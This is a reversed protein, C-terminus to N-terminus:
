PCETAAADACTTDWETDCCFPDDPCIVECCALSECGPSGNATLCSGDEADGCTLFCMGRATQACLDDWTGICCFPDQMCVADCCAVNDCGAAGTQHGVTCSGADPACTEFHGSCLGRSEEACIPDWEVDCCFPDISCTAACCQADDCGPTGNGLACDGNGPGCVAVGCRITLRGVGQEGVGQGVEFGGVRIMYSQGAQAQFSVRSEFGVGCDDDSCDIPASAPCECGNYVAMKTDYESGCLSVVVEGTCTAQYCFWVDSDIHTYDFFDCAAPEDPGDTTADVNSFLLTGDAVSAPSTCDDLPPGSLVCRDNLEDCSETEMCPAGSSICVGTAPDCSDSGNCFEGDDGCIVETSNRCEGDVCADTTCLSEDDCAFNATCAEFARQWAAFDAHDVTSNGDLDFAHCPAPVPIPGIVCEDWHRFDDLDVIGSGDYDGSGALGAPDLASACVAPVTAAAHPQAAARLGVTVATMLGTVALLMRRAHATLM